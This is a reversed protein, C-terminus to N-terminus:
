CHRTHVLVCMCMFLHVSSVLFRTLMHAMYTMSCAPKCPLGCVVFIVVFLSLRVVITKILVPAKGEELLQGTFQSSVCLEDHRFM